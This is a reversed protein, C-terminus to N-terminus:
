AADHPDLAEQLNTSHAQWPLRCERVGLELATVASRHGGGADFFVFEIRPM